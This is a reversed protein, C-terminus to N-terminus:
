YKVITKQSGEILQGHKDLEVSDVQLIRIAGYDLVAYNNGAEPKTQAKPWVLLVVGIGLLFASATKEAEPSASGIRQNVTNGKGILTNGIWKRFYKGMSRAKEPISLGLKEEARAVIEPHVPQASFIHNGEELDPIVATYVYKEPRGSAGAYHAATAYCSSLYAGAGFRCRAAGKLIYAPDFHDFLNASGHYAISM